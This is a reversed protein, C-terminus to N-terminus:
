GIGLIQMYLLADRNTSVEDGACFGRNFSRTLARYALRRGAIGDGQALAIEFAGNGDVLLSLSIEYCAIRLVLGRDFCSGHHATAWCCVGARIDGLRATNGVGTLTLRQIAVGRTM